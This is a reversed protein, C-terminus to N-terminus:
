FSDEEESESHVDSDTEFSSKRGPQHQQEEEEEEKKADGMGYGKELVLYATVKYLLVLLFNYVSTISFIHMIITYKCDNINDPFHCAPEPWDMHLLFAALLNFGEAILIGGVVLIWSNVLAMPCTLAIVVLFVFIAILVLVIVMTLILATAQASFYFVDSITSIEFAMLSRYLIQFFETFM